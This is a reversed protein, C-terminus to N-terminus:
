KKEPKSQVMGPGSYGESSIGTIPEVNQEQPPLFLTLSVRQEQPQTRLETLWTSAFAKCMRHKPPPRGGKPCAHLRVKLYENTAEQYEKTMTPPPARAFYRIAGFLVASAGMCIM